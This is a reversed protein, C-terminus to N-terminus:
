CDRLWLCSLAIRIRTRRGARRSEQGVTRPWTRSLPAHASRFRVAWKKTRRDSAIAQRAGAWNTVHGNTELFTALPLFVDAMQVTETDFIDAVVLFELANAWANYNPDAAPNEGIVLAGRIGDSRLKRSLHVGSRAIVESLNTRWMAGVQHVRASDKISAGGPLLRNSFGSLMLGTHNTQSSTIALGSGPTGIKGLMLMLTALAQLDGSSRDIRSDLNYWAVIKKSRDTLLDAM